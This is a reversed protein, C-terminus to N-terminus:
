CGRNHYMMGLRDVKSRSCLLRLRQFRGSTINEDEDDGDDDDPGTDREGDGEDDPGVMSLLM